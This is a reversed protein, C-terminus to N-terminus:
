LSGAFFRGFAATAKLRRGIGGAGTIRFTRMQKAFDRPQIRLVGRGVVPGTDRPGEHVTVYLTTTDSWVDFGRDDRIVKYGVMLYRSGDRARLPMRYTMRRAQVEDPDVTLLEFTGNSVTLPDDSLAPADVTGHLSAQHSPSELLQYLDDTTVTVVFDLRAADTVEAREADDFDVDAGLVFSGRMAETFEVGITRDGARSRPKSPLEFTIEWGRDRAMLAANREALASITLFPNVGLSRPIISGDSVYLGDHVEEGSRGAFVRGREDVVGTEASLM